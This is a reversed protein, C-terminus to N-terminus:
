NNEKVCVPYECQNGIAVFNFGDKYINLGCEDTGLNVQICTWNDAGDTVKIFTNNREYLMTQVEDSHKTYAVEQLTPLRWGTPCTSNYATTVGNLDMWVMTGDALEEGIWHDGLLGYVKAKRADVRESCTSLDTVEEEEQVGYPSVYPHTDCATIAMTTLAALIIKKM